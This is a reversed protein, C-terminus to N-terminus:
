ASAAASRLYNESRMESLRSLVRAFAFLEEDGSFISSGGIDDMSLKLDDRDRICM